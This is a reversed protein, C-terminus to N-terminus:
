NHQGSQEQREALWADNRAKARQEVLEMRKQKKKWLVIQRKNERTLEVRKLVEDYTIRFWQEGVTYWINPVPHFAMTLSSVRHRVTVRARSMFCLKEYLAKDAERPADRHPLDINIGELKGFRKWCRREGFELLRRVIFDNNLSFWQDHITLFRLSQDARKWITTLMVALKEGAQHVRGDGVLILEQLSSANKRGIQNLWDRHYTLTLRFRNRSYIFHLVESSLRKNVCAIASLVGPPFGSSIRGRVAAPLNQVLPFIPKNAKFLYGYIKFRIETPLYFFPFISKGRSSAPVFSGPTPLLTTLDVIPGVADPMDVDANDISDSPKDGENHGGDDAGNTERKPSTSLRLGGFLTETPALMVRKAKPADSDSDEAAKRKGRQETAYKDYEPWV